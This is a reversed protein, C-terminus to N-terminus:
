LWSLSSRDVDASAGSDARGEGRHPSRIGSPAPDAALVAAIRRCRGRRNRDREAVGGPDAGFDIALHQSLRAANPRGGNTAIPSGREIAATHSPGISSTSSGRSPRHRTRGRGAAADLKRGGLGIMGPGGSRRRRANSARSREFKGDPEGARARSRRHDGARHRLLLKVADAELMGALGLEDGLAAANRGAIDRHHKGARRQARHRHRGMEGSASTAAASVLASISDRPRAASRPSCRLKPIASGRSATDPRLGCAPSPPVSPRSSISMMSGAMAASARRLSALSRGGGRRCWTGRGRGPRAVVRGQAHVVVLRQDRDLRHMELFRDVDRQPQRDDAGRGVM